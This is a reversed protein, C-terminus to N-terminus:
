RWRTIAREAEATLCSVQDPSLTHAGNSHSWVASLAARLAELPADDARRATGDITLLNESEDYRACFHGHSATCRPDIDKADDCLGRLDGAIFNARQKAPANLIAYHGSVGTIVQLSAIGAAVSGAIDTDLRDGISLPSSAHAREAAFQFMRPGPKGAAEPVVGTASTVAAVMSGNGIHLGRELPLTTDLNSALYIAGNAIALAAESLQTWGTEPSHGHIVAVPSDDASNALMFGARRALEKLSESGVVYVCAGAPCKEAALTVVAQASTLVDEATAYLGLSRLQDAVRQPSRSANNTVYHCPTQTANISDIAHEIPRGGQYVTGDLDFILLDYDSALSMPNCELWRM